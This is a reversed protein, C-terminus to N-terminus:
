AYSTSKEIIKDVHFLANWNWYLKRSIREVYQQLAQVPFSVIIRNLKLKFIPLKTNKGRLQLPFLNGTPLKFYSYWSM